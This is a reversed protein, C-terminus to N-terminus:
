VREVILQHVRGSVCCCPNSQYTRIPDKLHPFETLVETMENGREGCGVYVVVQADSWKALTQQTVTKGTGFGGPIAATGGKAIPFLGDLTRTGTILPIDPPHKRSFPRPVRVPWKHMLQLKTGDELTGITDDVTYKGKKITKIQKKAEIRCMKATMATLRILM